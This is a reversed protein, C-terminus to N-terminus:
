FVSATYSINAINDDMADFFKLAVKYNGTPWMELFASGQLTINWWSIKGSRTCFELVEPAMPRLTDILAQLLPNGGGDKIIKCVPLDLYNVVTRYNDSGLSHDVKLSVQVFKLIMPCIQFTIWFVIGPRKTCSEAFHM